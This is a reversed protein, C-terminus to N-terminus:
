ARSVCVYLLRLTREIASDRGEKQNAIDTASLQKIGLLKDYSYQTHRGEEDDLVVLVRDFESGKTGHQTSYPSQQNVYTYYGALEDFRCQSMADLVKTTSEGLVVDSHDGDPHLYASLRPDFEILRHDAVLKLLEGLTAEAGPRAAYRLEDIASRCAALASRVQRTERGAALLPSRDKLIALVSAAGAGTDRCIPIIADRFPTLPWPTGDKFAEELSSSKNDSFAAFLAEFGLRRAAMRHAIMLIKAGGDAASRTWSGSASRQDLWERVRELSENRNDDAPLVFCFAHGEPQASGLGTIQQVSDGEARIANVCALVRLSSRFNEPKVVSRWGPELPVPGVGDLYIKQMPDGFFGLCMQGNAASCIRKLCQVVPAITDQSEDVFVFPFRRAVIRALLDREMIMAPVMKTIDTHGLLGRAYDGGIGYNWRRVTKVAVLQRQRKDLEAANKAKTTARTRSTFNNQEAELDAILETIHGSVWAAIDTQFPRVLSWLFSHITSVSALPDNGIEEHIERAAVETYTICAIQQSKASLTAGRTKTVHALAKVLSTTKGSGAGADVRFGTLRDQDLISRLERDADTDPALIRATM